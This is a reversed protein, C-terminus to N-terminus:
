TAAMGCTLTISDGGTRVERRGRPEGNAMPIDPSAIPDGTCLPRSASATWYRTVVMSSDSRAPHSRYLTVFAECAARTRRVILRPRCGGPTPRRTTARSAWGPHGDDAPIM